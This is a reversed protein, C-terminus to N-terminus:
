RANNFTRMFGDAKLALVDKYAFVPCLKNAVECHGHFSVAGRYERNIVMCFMALAGMQDITFERLGTVCIALSNTNHGKQAAPVVEPDRGPHVSGDKTIVWHYGIGDWGRGLHWNHIAEVSDHEPSDSASCHIFVKDVTRQTRAFPIM